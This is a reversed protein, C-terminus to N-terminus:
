KTGMQRGHLIRQEARLTELSTKLEGQGDMIRTLRDSVLAELRTQREEIRTQRDQLGAIDAQTAGTLRGTAFTWAFLALLVTLTSAIVTSWDVKRPDPM